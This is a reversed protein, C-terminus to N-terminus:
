SVIEAFQTALVRNGKKSKAFKKFATRIENRKAKTPVKFEDDKAELSNKKESRLIFYRDYGLVNDYSVFKKDRASKRAEKLEEPEYGAARSVATKFDDNCNAVFYGLTTLGPVESEIAKLLGSTINTSYTGFSYRGLSKGMKYSKNSEALNLRIGKRNEERALKLLDHKVSLEHSDGDTLVTFIPKQISHKRQFDKLVLHMGTLVDNLPTGSMSDYAGNSGSKEISLDFLERYGKEYDKKSFSSSLHHALHFHTHDLDEMPRSDMYDFRERKGDETLEREDAYGNTFSYVDFPINVRKCFMALNLVQTIVAGRADQMSASNDVLMVMGHSKADALHTVRRFIDESTKYEHLKNLDLAGSRSVSAKSYQYAAKRTEFEKVMVNVFRKTDVLFEKYKEATDMEEHKRQRWENDNLPRTADAFYEDIKDYRLKKYYARSASIKDFPVIREMLQWRHVGNIVVPLNGDANTELLQEANKMANRYTEVEEDTFDEPGQATVQQQENDEIDEEDAEGDTEPPPTIPDQEPNEQTEDADEQDDTSEEELEEGNGNAEEPQEDKLWDKLEQAADRPQSKVWDYLERSVTVVDDWTEARFAKDVLPQEDESFEVDVLDRLKAKLNIRDMLKLSNVDRGDIEFFNSEHLYNYGGKFSRVMGPYTEQILREIRIDEVINLYDGPVRADTEATQADGWGEPPTFLAHGVEHGVLMDYLDKNDDKWLPLGLIRNKVDFYATRYNGHQVSINEKALLRALLSKSESM